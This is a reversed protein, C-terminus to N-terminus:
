RGWLNNHPCFLPSSWTCQQSSRPLRWSVIHIHWKYMSIFNLEVNQSGGGKYKGNQSKGGGKVRPPDPSGDSYGGIECGAIWCEWLWSHSELPCCGMHETVCLEKHVLSVQSRECQGSSTSNKQTWHLYTIGRTETSLFCPFDSGPLQSLAPDVCAPSQCCGEGLTEKIARMDCPSLGKVRPNKYMVLPFM